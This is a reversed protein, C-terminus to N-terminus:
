LETDSIRVFLPGQSDASASRFGRGPPTGSFNTLGKGNVCSPQSTITLVNRRRSHEISVRLLYSERSARNPATSFSWTIVGPCNAALQLVQSDARSPLPACTAFAGSASARGTLFIREQPNKALRDVVKTWWGEVMFRLSLGREDIFDSSKHFRLETQLESAIRLKPRNERSFKLPLFQV